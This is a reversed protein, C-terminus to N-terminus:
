ATRVVRDDRPWFMWLAAAVVVVTLTISVVLDRVLFGVPDLCWSPPGGLWDADCSGPYSGPAILGAIPLGIALAALPLALLLDTARWFTLRVKSSRTFRLSGLGNRARAATQLWDRRELYDVAASYLGILALHYSRVMRDSAAEAAAIWAHPSWARTELLESRTQVAVSLLPNSPTHGSEERASPLLESPRLSAGVQTAWQNLDGVPWYRRGSWVSWLLAPSFLALWLVPPSLQGVVTNVLIGGVFAFLLVLCLLIRRHRLHETLMRSTADYLWYGNSGPPWPNGARRPWRLRRVQQPAATM